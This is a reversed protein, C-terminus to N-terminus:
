TRKQAVKKVAVALRSRRSRSDTKLSKLPKRRKRTPEKKGAAALSDARNGLSLAPSQTKKQFVIYMWTEGTLFNDTELVGGRSRDRWDIGPPLLLRVLKPQERHQVASPREVLTVCAAEARPRTRGDM